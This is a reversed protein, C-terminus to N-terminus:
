SYPAAWSHLRNAALGYEEVAKSLEAITAVDPQSVAYGPWWSNAYKDIYQNIADLSESAKFHFQRMSQLRNSDLLHKKVNQPILRAQDEPTHASKFKASLEQLTAITSDELDTPDLWGIRHDIGANLLHFVPSHGDINLETLPTPLAGQNFRQQLNNLHSSIRKQTNQLDQSIFEFEEIKSLPKTQTAQNVLTPKKPNEGVTETAKTSKLPEEKIEQVQVTSEIPDTQTAQSQMKPKVPEPKTVPKKPSPTSDLLTETKASGNIVPSVPQAKKKTAEGMSASSASGNTQLKSEEMPKLNKSNQTSFLGKLWNWIQAFFNKIEEWLCPTPQLPRSNKPIDLTDKKLGTAASSESSSITQEVKRIVGLSSAKIGNEVSNIAM